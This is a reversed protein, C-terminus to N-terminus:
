GLIPRLEEEEERDEATGAAGGKGNAEWVDLVALPDLQRWLPTALLVSTLLYLNRINLIVYGVSVTVTTVVAPDRLFSWAESDVQESFRDLQRWLAASRPRWPQPLAPSDKDATMDWSLGSDTGTEVVLLSDASPPRARPAQVRDPRAQTPNPEEPTAGGWRDAAQPQTKSYNDLGVAAGYLAPPGTGQNLFRPPDFPPV